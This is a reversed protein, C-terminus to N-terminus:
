WQAIRRNTSWSKVKKAASDVSQLFSLLQGYLTEPDCTKDEGLFVALSQHKTVADNMQRKLENIIDELELFKQYLAECQCVIKDSASNADKKRIALDDIFNKMATLSGDLRNIDGQLTVVSILKAEELSPFDARLTRM